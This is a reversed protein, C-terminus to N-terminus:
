PIPVYLELSKDFIVGKRYADYHGVTNAIRDASYLLSALLIYFEKQNIAKLGLLRNFEDRLYGIIKSDNQSFFKGGFHKSYYNEKIKQASLNAFEQRLPELKKFNFFDQGFFGQYIVYNSYLFDNLIFYTFQPKQMFYESVVGTGSFVDFFSLNHKNKYDFSKLISEDISELLKTKAGTYRRNALRM